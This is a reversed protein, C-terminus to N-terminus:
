NLNHLGTTYLDAHPVQSKDPTGQNNEQEPDSTASHISRLFALALHSPGSHATHKAQDQVRLTHVKGRLRQYSLVPPGSPVHGQVLGYGYGLYHRVLNGM